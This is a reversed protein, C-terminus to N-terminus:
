FPGHGYSVIRSLKGGFVKEHAEHAARLVQGAVSGDVPHGPDSACEAASDRGVDDGAGNRHEATKNRENTRQETREHADLGHTAHPQVVVVTSSLHALRSPPDQHDAPARKDNSDTPEQGNGTCVTRNDADHVAVFLRTTRSRPCAGVVRARNLHKKATYIRATEYIL